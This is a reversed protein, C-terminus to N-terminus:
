DTTRGAVLWLMSLCFHMFLLKRRFQEQSLCLLIGVLFWIILGALHLLYIKESAYYWLGAMPGEAGWLFFYLEPKTKVRWIEHIWLVVM